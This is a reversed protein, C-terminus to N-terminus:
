FRGGAGTPQGIEIGYKRAVEEAVRRRMGPDTMGKTRQEYEAAAARKQPSGSTGPPNAPPVGLPKGLMKDLQERSQQIQQELESRRQELKDKKQRYEAVRQEAGAFIPSVPKGKARNTAAVDAMTIDKDSPKDVKELANLEATIRTQQAQHIKLLDDLGTGSAGQLRAAAAARKTAEDALKARLREIASGYYQANIREGFAQARTDSLGATFAQDPTPLKRSKAYLSEVVRDAIDNFTKDQTGQQGAVATAGAEPLAATAQAGQLQATPVAAESGAIEANIKQTLGRQPLGLVARGEDTPQGGALSPAISSLYSRRGQEISEGSTPQGSVPVIGLRRYLEVAQPSEFQEPALLGKQRLDLMQNLVDRDEKLKTQRKKEKEEAFRGLAEGAGALFSFPGPEIPITM